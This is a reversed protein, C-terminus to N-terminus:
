HFLVDAADKLGSEWVKDLFTRYSYDVQLMGDTSEVIIGGAIDVTKGMRFGSFGPESLIKKLASVDRADCSVTGSPIESQARKLLSIIAQKHFAESLNCIEELTKIQVEDMLAKQANLVERKVALHGAAEEKTRIQSVIKQVNEEAATKISQAETQATTLLETKKAEADQVITDAEVRAKEKIETIVADLGM